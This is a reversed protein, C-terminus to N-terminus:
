PDHRLRARTVSSDTCTSTGDLQDVQAVITYWGATFPGEGPGRMTYNWNPGPGSRTETYTSGDDENHFTLRLEDYVGAAGDVRVEVPMNTWYDDGHGPDALTVDGQFTCSARAPASQESENGCDDFGQVTYWYEFGPDARPERFETAGHVTAIQAFDFPVTPPESGELLPGARFVRYDDVWVEAGDVDDRVRDWSMRVEGGDFFADVGSPAYLDATSTVQASVETSPASELGCDDIATVMSYYTRCSVAENDVWSPYGADDLLTEDRYLSTSGPTFGPSTARFLRYGDLDRLTADPVDTTNQTVADWSLRIRSVGDPAAAFDGPSEPTNYNQTRRSMPPSLPGETGATNVAAVRVTYDAGDALGGVYRPTVISTDRGDLAFPDTGYHLKYYAVRDHAPNPPWRVLLGGCHGETLTPTGVRSPAWMPAGSDVIRIKDRNRPSVDGSLLFPDVPRTGSASHRPLIELEVSVRAISSRAKASAPDDGGGPPTIENGALDFYRFRLSRINDALVTRTIFGPTGYASPDNSLSIRYLTYREAGPNLVVNDVTVPEAVGDRLAEAVDAEFSFSDPGTATGDPLSAALLFGHIEDNGTSVSGYVYAGGSLSLEPNVADTADGSDFDARVVIAREYAAEIAEDPRDHDGDPYLNLGALWVERNILDFAIRAIQQQETAIEGRQYSQRAGDYVTLTVVMAVAMITMAVLLEVLSVGGERGTGDRGSTRAPQLEAPDGSQPKLDEFAELEVVDSFASM